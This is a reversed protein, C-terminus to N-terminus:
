ISPLGRMQDKKLLESLLNLLIHGSMYSGRNIVEGNGLICYICVNQPHMNACCYLLRAIDPVTFGTYFPREFM